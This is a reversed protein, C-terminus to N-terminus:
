RHVPLLLELQDTRPPMCLRESCSQYQIVIHLKATGAPATKALRMALIFDAQRRFLTTRLGFAPDIVSDPQTQDAHLLAAPDGEVLSVVTAAPGGEPEDLAYIHWGPAIDGTLKLNFREGPRLPGWAIRAIKWVVPSKPVAASAWQAQAVFALLCWAGLRHWAGSRSGKHM